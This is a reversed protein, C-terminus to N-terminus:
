AGRTEGSVWALYPAYGQAVDLAVVKDRVLKELAKQVEARGM